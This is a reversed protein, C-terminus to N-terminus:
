NREQLEAELELPDGDRVVSVVIREGPEHMRLIMAYDALSLVQEGDIATILDGERIGAVQAAGGPTVPGVKVGEGSSAFDPAFGLSARQPAPEGAGSHGGPHGGPHGGGPHGSGSSGHGPHGGRSSNGGHSSSILAAIKAADERGAPVFTLPAERYRLYRVLEAAYETVKHLGAYEIRDPEDTVKSYDAHTGTFFHLVPLDKAFFSNHDSGGAGEPRLLLDFGFSANLGPLLGEFERATGSGFVFLRDDRLRGVEDFNIMAVVEDHAIAPHEAYFRSGVLGSEEASFILFLVDRQPSLAGNGPAEHPAGGTAADGGARFSEAAVAREAAAAREALVRAIELVVAVGSANDDAGNYISDGKLQGDREPTSDRGLHDIHAGVIVTERQPAGRGRLIAGVNHTPVSDLATFPQLYGALPDSSTSRSSFAPELGLSAFREAVERLAFELEASGLGRGAFADSAFHRVDRELASADCQPRGWPLPEPVRAGGQDQAAVSEAPLALLASIGLVLLFAISSARGSTRSSTRSLTRSSARSSGTRGSPMSM